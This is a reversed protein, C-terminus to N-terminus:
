IHLIYCLGKRAYQMLPNNSFHVVNTSLLLASYQIHGLVNGLDELKRGAFNYMDPVTCEIVPLGEQPLSTLVINSGTGLQHACLLCLIKAMHEKQCFQYFQAPPVVYTVVLQVRQSPSLLGTPLLTELLGNVPIQLM